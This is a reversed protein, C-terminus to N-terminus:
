DPIIIKDGLFKPQKEFTLDLLMKIELWINECIPKLVM